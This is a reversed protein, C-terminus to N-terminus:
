QLINHNLLPLKMRDPMTHWPYTNLPPPKTMNSSDQRFIHNLWLISMKPMNLIMYPQINNDLLNLMMWVFHTDPPITNDQLHLFM